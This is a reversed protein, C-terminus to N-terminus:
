EIFAEIVEREGKTFTIRYQGDKNGKEAKRKARVLKRVAASIEKRIYKQFEEKNALKIGKRSSIIVKQIINSDNIARIDNTMQHRTVSDHFSLDDFSVDYWEKLAYAVNIQTTWVDGCEKLYNYLAIQRQTLESKM